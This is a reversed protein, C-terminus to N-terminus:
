PLVVEISEDGVLLNDSINIGGMSIITRTKEGQRTVEIDFLRNFAKINSLIMTDWGTPLRPSFEFKNFGTPTIGFLGEIIVRCYLGSEASLHRQNGEPWAEVPYPVHDGLLRKSSYYDLYKMTTDTAGSAFLGRFAYLTSRDWFTESGSETLIGNETWLYKSLLAKNTEEKREFIGMTLPICIWSRLIENGDYYRYTNFGMVNAGFYNEIATRLEIARENFLIADSKGLENAVNASSLYAGYALVNTSLNINGAPFRGELEDSDSTILGEPTKKRELFEICWAILPWLEKAVDPNGYALAFRSAGYAIMAQDGRDGAGNWYSVGEAIISSPIPKYEPNMYRAFHRFSNIASENGEINGLFPFFPNVYEAQDNAWIAAYYRGGGPGHMLGGKTNFISEAARLKAFSFARNLVENPSEFVLDSFTNNVFDERKQLEYDPSVYFESSNISRGSYIITYEKSENAKLTYSGQNDSTVEIVYSGSVGKDKDTIYSIEIKPIEITLNESTTNVVKVRDLFIPQDTSPFLQHYIDLGEATESRYALKGKHYFERPYEVIANGNIKLPAIQNNEITQSLSAHTDNPITRLMPFVLHIKQKLIGNEVGYHLIASIYLGSMEVHDDHSDNEKVEWKISGDNIMSWRMSEQSIVPEIGYILLSILLGLSIINRMEM